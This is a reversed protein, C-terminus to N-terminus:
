VTSLHHEWAREAEALSATRWEEGVTGSFHRRALQVAERTSHGGFYGRTTHIPRGGNLELWSQYGESAEKTLYNAVKQSEKTLYGSSKTGPKKIARVDVIHGWREQLVNRPIYDGWQIAHIHIMGTKSGMETTWATNWAYGQKRAWLTVHRMKQRRAQWETPAMTLTMLRTRDVQTQRWAMALSLGQTKKPGCTVCQYADCGAFVYRTPDSCAVLVISPKRPCM